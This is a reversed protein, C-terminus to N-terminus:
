PGFLKDLWCGPSRSGKFEGLFVFQCKLRLRWPLGTLVRVFINLTCHHISIQHPVLPYLAPPTIILPRLERWANPPLFNHTSNPSGVLNLPWVISITRRPLFSVRDIFRQPASLQTYFLLDPEQRQQRAWSIRKGTNRGRSQARLSTEHPVDNCMCPPTTRCVNYNHHKTQNNDSNAVYSNGDM